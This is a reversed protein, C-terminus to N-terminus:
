LKAYTKDLFRQTNVIARKHTGESIKGSEDDLIRVVQGNKEGNVAPKKIPREPDSEGQGKGICIIPLATCYIIILISALAYIKKM